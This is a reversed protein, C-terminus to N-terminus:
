NSPLEIDELQPTEKEMCEIFTVWRMFDYTSWRETTVNDGSNSQNSKRYYLVYEGNSLKSLSGHDTIICTTDQETKNADLISDLETLIQAHSDRGLFMLMLKSNSISTAHLKVIRLTGYLEVNFKFYFSSGNEVLSLDSMKSSWIGARLLLEKATLTIRDDDSILYKSYVLSGDIIKLSDTGTFYTVMPQFRELINSVQNPNYYDSLEEKFIGLSNLILIDTKFEAEHMINFCINSDILQVSPFNVHLDHLLSSFAMAYNENIHEQQEQVFTPSLKKM